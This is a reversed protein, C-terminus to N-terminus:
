AEYRQRAHAAVHRGSAAAVRSDTFFSLGFAIPPLIKVANSWSQELIAGLIKGVGPVPRAGLVISLGRSLPLDDVDHVMIRDL